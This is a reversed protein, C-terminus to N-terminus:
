KCYNEFYNSTKNNEFKLMCLRLFSYLKQFNQWFGMTIFAKSSRWVVSFQAFIVILFGIYKCIVVEVKEKCMQLLRYLWVYVFLLLYIAANLRKNSQSHTLIYPRQALDGIYISYPLLYMVFICEFMWVYTCVFM